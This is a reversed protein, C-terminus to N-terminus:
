THTTSKLNLLAYISPRVRKRLAEALVTGEPSSYWHATGNYVLLLANCGVAEPDARLHNLSQPLARNVLVYVHENDIQFDTVLANKRESPCLGKGFRHPLYVNEFAESVAAMKPNNLRHFSFTLNKWHYEKGLLTNGKAKQGM